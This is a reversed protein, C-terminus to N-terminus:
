EEQVEEAEAEAMADEAAQETADVEVVETETMASDLTQQLNTVATYAQDAQEKAAELGERLRNINEQTLTAM